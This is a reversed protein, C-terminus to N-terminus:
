GLIDWPGEECRSLALSNTLKARFHSVECIELSYCCVHIEQEYTNAGATTTNYVGGELHSLLEFSLLCPCMFKENVPGLIQSCYYLRDPCYM